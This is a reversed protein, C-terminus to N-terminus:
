FQEEAIWMPSGKSSGKSCLLTRGPVFLTKSEFFVKPLRKELLTSGREIRQRERGRGEQRWRERM